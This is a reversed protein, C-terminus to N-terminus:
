TICELAESAHGFTVVALVQSSVNMRSLKAM